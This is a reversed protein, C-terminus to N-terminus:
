ATKRLGRAEVGDALELQPPTRALDVHILDEAREDVFFGISEGRGGAGATRLLALLYRLTVLQLVLVAACLGLFSLLLTVTSPQRSSVLARLAAVLRLVLLGLSGIVGACALCQLQLLSRRLSQAAWFGLLAAGACLLGEAKESGPAPADIAFWCSCLQM